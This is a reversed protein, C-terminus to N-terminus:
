NSALSIKNEYADSLAQIITLKYKILTKKRKKGPFFRSINRSKLMKKQQFLALALRNERIM